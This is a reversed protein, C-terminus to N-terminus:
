SPVISTVTPCYIARPELLVPAGNYLAKGEIRPPEIARNAGMGFGVVEEPPTLESWQALESGACMGCWPEGASPPPPTIIAKNLEIFPKWLSDSTQADITEQTGYDVYGQNYIHFKWNPLAGFVVTFGTDPLEQDETYTTSPNLTDFIRNSLGVQKSLKDNNFLYRGVLGNVWVESLGRGNERAAVYQLEMLQGPIDTDPDEWSDTFISSVDAYHNSPVKAANVVMASSDSALCPVLIPTGSTSYNKIGFGNNQMLQTAMWEMTTNMRSKMYMLQAKYYSLGRGRVPPMFNQGLDRSGYLEGLNVDIAMYQRPVVIPVSGIPKRNIRTPPAGPASFSGLTRTGDFIDYQGKNGYITAVPESEVGMKYYQSFTNGPARYRRLVGLITERKMLMDFAVGTAM